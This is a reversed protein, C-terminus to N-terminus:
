IYTCKSLESQHWKKPPGVPAGMKKRKKKKRLNRQLMNSAKVEIIFFGWGSWSINTRIGHCSWTEPCVSRTGRWPSSACSAERRRSRSSIINAVERTVGAVSWCWPPLFFPQPLMTSWNAKDVLHITPASLLNYQLTTFRFAKLETKSINAGKVIKYFQTYIYIDTYKHM